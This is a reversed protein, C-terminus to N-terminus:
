CQKLMWFLAESDIRCFLFNRDTEILKYKSDMSFHVICIFINQYNSQRMM